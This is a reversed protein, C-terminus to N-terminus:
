LHSLNWDLVYNVCADSVHNSSRPIHFYTIFDFHRELLHVQLFRYLLTPDRVCYRDNLHRVVLQSDLHVEISLIGHSIVDCLLEIVVRYKAVNNMSPGLFVGSSSVLLGESSYIVWAASALNRTHRKARDTFGIYFLSETSM